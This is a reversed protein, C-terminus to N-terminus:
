SSPHEIDTFERILQCMQDRSHSELASDRQVLSILFDPQPQDKIPICILHDEPGIALDVLFGIGVREKIMGKLITLNNSQYIINPEFHAQQSFKQFAIPHVYHENLLVFAENELENFSVSKRQALPHDPSVVISFNKKVLLESYLEPDRIPETSGLLAMDIKGRKLLVYLDKSGGDILNVHEMLNNKFLFASLKPFYYNGIIPPLGFELTQKKLHDIERIAVSLENLITSIHKSLIMGSKTIVLSRHSQDRFILDTDLEKELRKVAYTVTPQSVHFAQAVKTFSKEKVLRQFYELDKLNM